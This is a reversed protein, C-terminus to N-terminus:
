EDGMRFRKTAVFMLGIIWAFVIVIDWRNNFISISELGVSRMMRLLPSLPLFKVLSYLWKPLQDIPFFVGSLFMMPISVATAISDASDTNKAFAAVSFGVVQFLIAGLFALAIFEPWNGVIHGGFGKIGLGLILAIQVANLVLRSLIEAGVFKWSPLPTTTIRKLIKDERYRAMTISIGHISSNMLAMGILGVMVYDFYSYANTKSSSIVQEYSFTPKANIVQYNLASLYQSMFGSIIAQSQAAGPSYLITLVKPSNQDSLNGFNEPIILAAGAQEKKIDDRAQDITDDKKVKFVDQTDITQNLSQSLQTNSQNVIAIVTSSSSGKSFFFGFIVTFILPFALQWFL